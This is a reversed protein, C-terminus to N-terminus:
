GVLGRLWEALASSSPTTGTRVLVEELAAGLARCDPYRDQPAYALARWLIADLERPLDPRRQSLPPLHPWGALGLALMRGLELNILEGACLEYLVAGMGFVDVRRDVPQGSRQEPAMYALTGKVQGPITLHAQQDAKAIGFDAVKVAGNHGILINSPKVDRHILGLPRGDGDTAEHAAHLGECAMMGITLAQRLPITQGLARLQEILASADLGEVYEMAIFYTQQERGLDYIQVVNPHSIKAQLRAEDLFHELVATSAFNPRLVKLAVTKEFRAEGVAQALFVESMGGAGLPRVLRYKGAILGGPATGAHPLTPSIALDTPRPPSPPSRRGSRLLWAAVLLGLGAAAGGALRLGGDHGRPITLIATVPRISGPPRLLEFELVRRHSGARGLVLPASMGIIKAGVQLAGLREAARQADVRLTVALLGTVEDKRYLPDVLVSVTVLFDNGAPSLVSGPVGGTPAPPGDPPQRLLSLPSGGRPVQFLEMTEDPRPVLTFDRAVMDAVTRQDTAVASRLTQSLALGAARGEAAQFAASLDRALDALVRRAEVEARREEQAMQHHGLLFLGTGLTLTAGLVLASLLLGRGM